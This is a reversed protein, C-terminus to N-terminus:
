LCFIELLWKAEHSLISVACFHINHMAICKRITKPYPYFSKLLFLFGILNPYWKEFVPYSRVTFIWWRIMESASWLPDLFKKSVIKHLYMLLFDLYLLPTVRVSSQRTVEWEVMNITTLNEGVWNEIQCFVPHPIRYRQGEFCFVPFAPQQSM